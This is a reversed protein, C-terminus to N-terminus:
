TGPSVALESKLHHAVASLSDFIGNALRKAEETPQRFDPVLYVRMGARHAAIVGPEADELVLCHPAAVGLRQAALLFLDPSPKGNGVEDGGATADFRGLLSTAELQSLAVERETSTAVAKPINWSDLLNLLDDLGPKKSIPKLAFSTAELRRCAPRFRDISFGSGFEQRLLQEAERRGGGALRSFLHDSLSFGCEASAEQWAARYLPETDLMLGDMDFIAASIV